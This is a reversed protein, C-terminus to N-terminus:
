EYIYKGELLNYMDIYDIGVTKAARLDRDSLGWRGSHIGIYVVEDPNYIINGPKNPDELVSGLIRDKPTHQQMQKLVHCDGLPIRLYTTISCVLYELAVRALYRDGLGPVLENSPFIIYVKEPNFSSIKEWVNFKPKLDFMARPLLGPKGNSDYSEVLCDLADCVVIRKQKSNITYDVKQQNQYISGSNGNGWPTSPQNNNGSGSSGWSSWSPTSQSQSKQQEWPAAGSNGSGFRSGSNFSPTFPADMRVTNINTTSTNTEQRQNNLIEEIRADEDSEDIEEIEELPDDDEPHGTYDPPILNDEEEKNLKNTREM